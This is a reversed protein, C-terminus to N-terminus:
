ESFSYASQPVHARKGSIGMWGFGSQMGVQLVEISFMFCHKFHKYEMLWYVQLYFNEIKKVGRSQWCNFLLLVSLSFFGNLTKKKEIRKQVIGTILNIVVCTIRASKTHDYLWVFFEHKKAPAWGRVVRIKHRAGATITTLMLNALTIDYNITKLVQQICVAHITACLTM